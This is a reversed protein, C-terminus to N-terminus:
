KLAWNKGQVYETILTAGEDTSECVVFPLKEDVLDDEARMEDTIDVLKVYVKALKELNATGVTLTKASGTDRLEYILHVLSDVTLKHGYSTGSGVQLNVKINKIWIETLASCNNFTSSASTVSRFDLQPISTVKSCRYFTNSMSTVKSTNMWPIATLEICENFMSYMDTVNSTDLAPISTLANCSSFMSSMVTVKSTNLQPITKLQRDLYFMYQMNIVNGTNIPPITTLKSCRSFMNNMGIVESTDNYDLMNFLQDDTIPNFDNMNNSRLFEVATKKLSLLLGIPTMWKEGDWFYFRKINNEDKSVGYVTEGEGTVKYIGDESVDTTPLERVEMLGGETEDSGGGGGSHRKLAPTAQDIFMKQLYNEM